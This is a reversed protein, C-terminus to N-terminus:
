HNLWFEAHKKAEDLSALVMRDSGVCEWKAPSRRTAERVKVEMLLDCDGYHEDGYLRIECRKHETTATYGVWTIDGDKWTFRVWRFGGM